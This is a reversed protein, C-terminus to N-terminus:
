EGQTCCWCWSQACNRQACCVVATCRFIAIHQLSTHRSSKCNQQKHHLHRCSYLDQYENLLACALLSRLVQTNMTHGDTTHHCSHMCASGFGTTILLTVHVRNVQVHMGMISFMLVSCIPVCVHVVQVHNCAAKWAFHFAFVTCQSDTSRQFTM